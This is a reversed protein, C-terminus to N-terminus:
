ALPITDTLNGIEVWTNRTTQFSELLQDDSLFTKAIRLLELLQNSVFHITSKVQSKLSTPDDTSFLPGIDVLVVNNSQTSM